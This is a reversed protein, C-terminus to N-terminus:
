PPRRSRRSPKGGPSPCRSCCGAVPISSRGTPAATSGRRASACHRTCPPGPTTPLGRRAPARPRARAGADRSRPRARPPLAGRSGRRDRALDGFVRARRPRRPRGTGLGAAAHLPAGAARDAGPEDAPRRAPALRRGPRERGRGPDPQQAQGDARRGAAPRGTAGRPAAFSFTVTREVGPCEVRVLVRGELRKRLLRCFATPSPLFAPREGLLHLRPAEPDTSILLRREAAGRVLLVLERPSPQQVAQVRAPLENALERAVAKLVIAEM